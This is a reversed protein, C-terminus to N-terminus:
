CKGSVVRLSRSKPKPLEAVLDYGEAGSVSVELLQGPYL